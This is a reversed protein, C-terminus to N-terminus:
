EGWRGARFQSQNLPSRKPLEGGLSQAFKDGSDTRMAAHKPAPIDKDEKAADQAVSWLATAIGKRRHEPHTEISNVTGEHNLYLSGVHTGSDTFHALYTHPFAKDYNAVYTVDLNHDPLRWAKMKPPTGKVRRIVKEEDSM